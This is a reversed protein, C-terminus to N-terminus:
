GLPFGSPTNRGATVCAKAVEQFSRAPRSVAAPM